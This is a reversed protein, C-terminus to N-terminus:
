AHGTTIGPLEPQRQEQQEAQQDSAAVAVPGRAGAQGGGFSWHENEGPLSVLFFVDRCLINQM